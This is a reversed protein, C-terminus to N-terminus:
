LTNSPLNVRKRKRKKERESEENRTQQSFSIAASVCCVWARTNGLVAVVTFYTGTILSSM